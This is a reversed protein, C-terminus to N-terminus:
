VERTDRQRSITREKSVKHLLAVLQEGDMKEFRRLDTLVDGAVGAGFVGFDDAGTPRVACHPEIGALSDGALAVTRRLGARHTILTHGLLDPAEM